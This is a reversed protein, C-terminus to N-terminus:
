CSINCHSDANLKPGYAEIIGDRVNGALCDIIQGCNAADANLSVPAYRCSTGIWRDGSSGHSVGLTGARSEVMVKLCRGRLSRFYAERLESEVAAL